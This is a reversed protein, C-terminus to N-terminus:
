PEGAARKAMEKLLWQIDPHAVPCGGYHRPSNSSLWTHGCIKCQLVGVARSMVSGRAVALLADRENILAVQIQREADMVREAAKAVEREAYASACSLCLIKEAGGQGIAQHCHRAWEELSRPEPMMVEMSVMYPASNCDVGM